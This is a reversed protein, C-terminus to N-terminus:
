TCLKTEYNGLDTWLRINWKWILEWNVEQPLEIVVFSACIIKFIETFETLTNESPMLHVVSYHVNQVLGLVALFDFMFKLKELEHFNYFTEIEDYSPAVSCFYSEIRICFSPSKKFYNHINFLIRMIGLTVFGFQIWVQGDM